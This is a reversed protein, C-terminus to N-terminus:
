AHWQSGLYVKKCHSAQSREHGTMFHIYRMPTLGLPLYLIVVSSSFQSKTTLIPVDCLSLMAANLIVTFFFKHLVFM